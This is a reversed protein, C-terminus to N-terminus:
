VIFDVEERSNRAKSQHGGGMGRSYDVGDDAPVQVMSAM